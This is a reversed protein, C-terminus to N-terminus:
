ISKLDQILAKVNNYRTGKGKKTQQIAQATKPNLGEAHPKVIRAFDPSMKLLKVYLRGKATKENIEVLTTM